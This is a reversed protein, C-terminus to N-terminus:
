IKKMNVFLRKMNGYAFRVPNFRIPSLECPAKFEDGPFIDPHEHPYVICKSQAGHLNRRKAEVWLPSMDRNLRLLRLFSTDLAVPDRSCAFCGLMFPEGHIPGNIHMVTIADAFVVQEPLIEILDLLIRSFNGEKGGHVMHLVSKQLGRVTGFLNKVAATVYMQSHAKIKPLNCLYDCELAEKAIKVAVGCPLMVNDTATFEVTKVNRRTIKEYVGLAKLVGQAQGFAPSDGISVKAGMDMLWECLALIIVPNTTSLPINKAAILNPKILVRHSRFSPSKSDGYWRDLLEKIAHIEYKQCHQLSVPISTM